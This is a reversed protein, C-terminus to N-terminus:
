EYRLADIPNLRAAKMAPYIGFFVGVVASSAFSVIIPFPTLITTWGVFTRMLIAGGVGVGIGILGGVLSLTVSEIVFQNLIDMWRAGIAKRIGIERTRETVSVLMINMIGIGGVLLSVMAIGTLLKTMMDSTERASDALDAQNFVRVDPPDGPQLHHRRAILREVENQAPGMVDDSKAQVSMRGIYDVGYLRKMATNIPGFVQDDANQFGGVSGKQAMVGVVEFNQGRIKLTKGVPLINDGFLSDRVSDGIVCVKARREDDAHTFYQGDALKYNRIDFYEPTTGIVSTRTNQNLYKV